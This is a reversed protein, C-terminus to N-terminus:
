RRLIKKAFDADKFPVTFTMNASIGDQSINQVIMDVNINHSGMLGFIIASIGPKDPIGSVTLKSENTSYSM